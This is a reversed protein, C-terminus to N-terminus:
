MIVVGKGKDPKSIYLSKDKSLSRLASLEERYEHQYQKTVKTPRRRFTDCAISFKNAYQIQTPTM